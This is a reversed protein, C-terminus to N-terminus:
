EPYILFPRRRALFGGQADLWDIPSGAVVARRLTGDDGALRDFQRATFALRSGLVGLLAVATDGLTAAVHRRWLKPPFAGFLAHQVALVGLPTWPHWPRPQVGLADLEPARALGAAHAHNVGRVYARVWRATDADLGEFASRALPDIGTRRSLVDWDVGAPGLLEAVTGESRRRGVELQWARDQATAVGQGFALDDADAARVHPIGWADRRIEVEPRDTRARESTM